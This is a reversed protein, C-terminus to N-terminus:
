DIVGAHTAIFAKLGSADMQAPGSLNLLLYQGPVRVFHTHHHYHRQLSPPPHFLKKEVLRISHMMSSSLM